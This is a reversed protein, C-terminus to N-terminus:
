APAKALDRRLELAAARLQEFLQKVGVCQYDRRPWKFYGGCSGLFECTRCEEATALAREIWVDLGADPAMATTVILAGLVGLGARTFRRQEWRRLRHFMRNLRYVMRYLPKM